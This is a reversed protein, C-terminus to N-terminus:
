RLLLMKRVEAYTMVPNDVPTAELRCFYPGTSSDVHWEITQVGANKVDDVPVDVTRGLIDTISLRVFSREPLEYSIRTSPNFPNPFNQHLKFRDPIDSKHPTIGSPTKPFFATLIHADADYNWRVRCTRAASDVAWGPHRATPLLDAPIQPLRIGDLVVSDPATSIWELEAVYAGIQEHYMGTCSGVTITAQEPTRVHTVAIQSVEGNEYSYTTGDDQYVTATGSGGPYSALILEARGTSDATSQMPPAMPIIAGGKVFIPIDERAVPVTISAPGAYRQGTHFDLWPGEPLYVSQSTAGSVVVPSVLLSAGFMWESSLNLVSPDDPYQMVLPRVISIGTLHNEWAAARIYPMLRYRLRIYKTAISEAEAGFHWPEREENLTGHVRFVPVFAGFQVWRFYNEATPTGAFGGIDMGWWSVGLVISSLMFLRQDAMASFGTQIDGSWLGYAYRQAGTFFNRNISWVRRNNYRRQGEYQARQMQLFMLSGGYEDAEDNWYGTIGKDYSRNLVAFSDWYWNRVAPNHFDLLGVQKGSFYDTRYDLFFNNSQCYTGQTTAVHVRPKRIGMLHMGWRALSDVIVGSQGDPFKPGWHFEGYNDSGWDMWDFDLIYADIPISKARYTRIDSYLENQDIGWETNMFGLTYAPFLPPMGTIKHLGTVIEKPTGTILYFELDRKRSSAVRSFSFTSGSIAITGGAADALFGWGTTTWAFPGGAQGQNGAFVAGGSGAALVGQSRNHIGYFTGGSTNLAINNQAIGGSSPEECLLGGDPRRLHFRMPARNIELVFGSATVRIPDGTTDIAISVPPWTTQAVVLTDPDEIGNPRYNVMLVADTCARFIVVNADSTLTLTSADLRIGTINGIGQGRLRSALVPLILMCLFATLRFRRTM